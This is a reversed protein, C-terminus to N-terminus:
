LKTFFSLTENRPPLLTFLVIVVYLCLLLTSKKVQKDRGKVRVVELLSCIGQPIEFVTIGKM